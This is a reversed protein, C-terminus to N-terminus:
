KIGGRRFKQITNGLIDGVYINGDEDIAVDHYWCKPGDYSGTRGFQNLINGSSDLIIIDSGNHHTGLMSVADDVAIINNTRKDFTVACIHGFSKDTWQQLFKGSPDFKQIRSNERDAVYVNGKKDLTIGHPINFEGAGNGKTGWEFLYKGSSSFKVVRSNVYGDSVYFSGDEAFTTATPLNFHLFDNGPIKAEGLAMLLKGEHTFKLVQQLGVDTVWVNNDKDFVGGTLGEPREWFSKPKIPQLDTM